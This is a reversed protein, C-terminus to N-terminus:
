ECLEFSTKVNEFIVWYAQKENQASEGVIKVVKSERIISEKKKRKEKQKENM